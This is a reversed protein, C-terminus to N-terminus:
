ILVMKLASGMLEQEAESIELRRRSNEKWRSVSKAVEDVIADMTKQGFRFYEGVRKALELDLANNDM